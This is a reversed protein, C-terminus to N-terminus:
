SILHEKRFETPSIGHKEKFVRNFTGPYSYGIELAIETISGSQEKLMKEADAIRRSNIYDRYGVGKENQMIHTIYNTSVGCIRALEKQSLQPITYLEDIANFVRNASIVQPTELIEIPKYYIKRLTFLRIMRQVVVGGILVTILIALSILGIVWMNREFCINSLYIIRTEGLQRNDGNTFSIASIRNWEPQVKRGYETIWWPPVKFERIPIRVKGSRKELHHVLLVANSPLTKLDLAKPESRMVFMFDHDSLSDINFTLSSYRHLNFFGTKPSIGMGAFPYLIGSDPVISLKVGSSNFNADLIRSNGGLGSDTIAYFHLSAGTHIEDSSEIHEAFSFTRSKWQLVFDVALVVILGCLFFKYWKSKLM